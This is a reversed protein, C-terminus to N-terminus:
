SDSNGGVPYWLDNDGYAVGEVTDPPVPGYFAKPGSWAKAAPPEYDSGNWTLVTLPNPSSATEVTVPAARRDAADWVRYAGILFLAVITASLVQVWLWAPWDNIQFAIVIGVLGLAGVLVLWWGVFSHLWRLGELVSRGVFGGFRRM